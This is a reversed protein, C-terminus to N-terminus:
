INGLSCVPTPSYCFNFISNCKNIYLINCHNVLLYIFLLYFIFFLFYFYFIFFLFIFFLFIFFLFIFFLFYFIFFGAGSACGFFNLLERFFFKRLKKVRKPIKGSKHNADPARNKQNRAGFLFPSCSIGNSMLNALAAFRYIYPKDRIDPNPCDFIVYQFNNWAFPTGSKPTKYYL